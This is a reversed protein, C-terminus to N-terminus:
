MDAICIAALTIKRNLSDTRLRFPPIRHARGLGCIGLWQQKISRVNVTNMLHRSRQRSKAPQDGLGADSQLVRRVILAGLAGTIVDAQRKLPQGGLDLTLAGDNILRHSM